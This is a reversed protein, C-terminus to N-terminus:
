FVIQLFQINSQHDWGKVPFGGYLPVMPLKTLNYLWEFFPRFLTVARFSERVNETFMPIVPCKAALAIKAFGTRSKWMVQKLPQVIITSTNGIKFPIIM